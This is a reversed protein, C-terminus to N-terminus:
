TFICFNQMKGLFTIVLNKFVLNEFNGQGSNSVTNSRSPFLKLPTHQDM